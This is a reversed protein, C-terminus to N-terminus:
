FPTSYWTILIIDFEGEVKVAAPDAPDVVVAANTVTDIVLYSYNDDLVAIPVIKIGALFPCSILNLLKLRPNPANDGPSLTTPQTLSHAGKDKIKNLKRLHYAYGLRTNYLYYRLSYLNM